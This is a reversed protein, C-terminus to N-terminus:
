KLLRDSEKSDFSLKQTFPCRFIDWADVSASLNTGTDCHCIESFIIHKVCATSKTAAELLLSTNQFLGTLRM